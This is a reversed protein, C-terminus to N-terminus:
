VRARVARSPAVASPRADLLAQRDLLVVLGNLDEAVLVSLLGRTYEESSLAKWRAAAVGLVLDPFIEWQSGYKARLEDPTM